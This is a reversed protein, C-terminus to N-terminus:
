VPPLPPLGSSSALGMSLPPASCTPTPPSPRSPATFIRMVSLLAQHGQQVTTACHTPRVTLRVGESGRGEAACSFLHPKAGPASSVSAMLRPPSSVNASSSAASRATPPLEVPVLPGTLPPLGKSLLRAPSAASTAPSPLEASGSPMAARRRLSQLSFRTASPAATPTQPRCSRSGPASAAARCGSPLPRAAATPAATSASAAASAARALPSGSWSLKPTYASESPQLRGRIPEGVLRATDGSTAACSSAPKTVGSCCACASPHSPAGGSASGKEGPKWARMSAHRSGETASTRCLPQHKLSLLSTTPVARLLRRQTRLVDPRLQQGRCVMGAVVEVM